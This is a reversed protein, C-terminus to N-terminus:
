AERRAAEAAALAARLADIDAPVASISPDAERLDVLSMCVTKVIKAQLGNQPNALTTAMFHAALVVQRARRGPKAPLDLNARAVPAIADIKTCLRGGDDLGRDLAARVLLDVSTPRRAFLSFIDTECDAIVTIQGAPRLSSLRM